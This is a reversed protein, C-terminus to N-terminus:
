HYGAFDHIFCNDYQFGHVVYQVRVMLQRIQELELETLTHYIRLELMGSYHDVTDNVHFSWNGAKSLPVIHKKIVKAARARKPYNLM